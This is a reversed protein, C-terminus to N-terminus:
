GFSGSPLFFAPHDEFGRTMVPGLPHLELRAALVTKFAWQQGATIWNVDITEDESARSLAYVLLAVAAEEDNAAVVLPRGGRAICFGRGRVLLLTAGSDLLHRLEQDRPGGRLPRDIEAVLDADDVTGEVVLADLEERLGDHLQGNTVADRLSTKDVRGWAAMAPHLQFGARTYSRAARPDRSCMIFGFRTDSRYAVAVDILARGTGREQSRPSVALLSLVWVDERALAQALGVVDGNEEAVWSGDPDTSLLHEIRREMFAVGEPTREEYPLNYAARMTTFAEYWVREVRPVDSGTMPRITPGSTTM